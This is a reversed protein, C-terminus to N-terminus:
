QEDKFNRLTVVYRVRVRDVRAKLERARQRRRARIRDTWTDYVWRRYSGPSHDGYISSPGLDPDPETEMVIRQIPDLDLELSAESWVERQHEHAAGSEDGPRDGNAPTM